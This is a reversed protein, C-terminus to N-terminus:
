LLSQEVELMSRAVGVQHVGREARQVRDLAGARHEAEVGDGGEGMVNFGCEITHALAFNGRARRQDRDRQLCLVLDAASRAARCRL